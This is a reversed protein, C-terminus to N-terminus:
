YSVNVWLLIIITEIMSYILKYKCRINSFPTNMKLTVEDRLFYFCFIFILFISKYAILTEFKILFKHVHCCNIIKIWNYNDIENNTLIIYEQSLRQFENKIVNENYNFRNNFHCIYYIYLQISVFSAMNKSKYRQILYTIISVRM